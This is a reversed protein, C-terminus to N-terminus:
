PDSRQCYIILGRDPDLTALEPGVRGHDQPSRFSDPGKAKGEPYRFMSRKYLGSLPRNRLSTELINHRVNDEPEHSNEQNNQAFSQERNKGANKRDSRPM